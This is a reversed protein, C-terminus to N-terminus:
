GEIERVTEDVVRELRAAWRPMHGRLTRFFVEQGAQVTTASTGFVPHVWTGLGDLGWALSTGYRADIAPGDVRIRVGLPIPEAETAAATRARLGSSEGGDRTSSVEVGMWAARVAVVASAGESRIAVELRPQLMAAARELRAALRDLADAGGARIRVDM